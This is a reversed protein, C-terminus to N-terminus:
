IDFPSNTLIWFDVKDGEVTDLLNFMRQRQVADQIATQSLYYKPPPFERAFRQIQDSKLNVVLDIDHTARPVGHLSSAWSGTLMSEIGLDDLVRLVSALLEQQSM